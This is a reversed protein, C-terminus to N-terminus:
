PTAYVVSWRFAGTNASGASTVVKLDFTTAAAVAVTNVLDQCSTAAAGSITCTIATDANASRFTIVYSQAAGPPTTVQFTLTKFTGARATLGSISAETANGGGIGAFNTQNGPLGTGFSQGTIDQLVGTTTGTGGNAKPLVGTVGPFSGDLVVQGWGLATGTQNVLLAYGINAAIIDASAKATLGSNGVVSLGTGNSIPGYITGSGSDTIILNGVVNQNNWVNDGLIKTRVATASNVVQSVGAWVNVRNMGIETDSAAGVYITNPNGLGSNAVQIQNNWITPNLITATAGRMNVLGSGALAGTFAHEIVNDSIIPKVGSDIVIAEFGTAAFNNNKVLLNGSGAVQSSLLGTNIGGFFNQNTFNLSDGGFLVRVGGNFQTGRFESLFVGVGDSRGHLYLSYGGGTQAFLSNEVHINNWAAVTNATTDIHIVHQGPTGSVPVVNVTFFGGGYLSTTPNLYFVDRTNPVSPDVLLNLNQISIAKAYTFIATGSGKVVCHSGDTAGNLIGGSPTAAIAAAIAATDDTVSDCKAGFDNISLNERLKAIITRAVAGAGIQQFLGIGQAIIPSPAYMVGGVFVVCLIALSTLTRALIKM